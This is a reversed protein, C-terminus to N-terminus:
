RPKKPRHIQLKKLRSRLTNPHLGLRAAAGGPGDLVWGTAELASVVADRELEKLPRPASLPATASDPRAFALVDNLNVESGRSVICARAIANQLERVNGPWDAQTLWQVAERSITLTGRGLKRGEQRVLVEALDAIDGRRDRLPPVAIPFVNLRFLLDSRFRGAKVDAQLDRNTAAVIRVDVKIPLSSGVRELEGEQLVRLLKAQTELPLEGVEDLFLTGEDAVEFRGMRRAVAGTFAGKEHGFLESEVLGASVAACNVKVLMRDRRPSAQHLARAVLEKGTGTEGTILVAANSPGVLLVRELVGAMGAGVIGDPGYSERLEAALYDVAQEAQRRPTVDKMLLSTGNQSPFFQILWWRRTLPLYLEISQPRSERRAAELTAELAPLEDPAVTDQWRAGIIRQEPLGWAEILKRNASLVRGQLDLALFPDAVREVMGSVLERAMDAEARARREQALLEERQAEARARELARACGQSLIRLLDVQWQPWESSDRQMSSLGLVHSLEGGAAVPFLLASSRQHDKIYDGLEGGFMGPARPLIFPQQSRLAGLLQPPVSKFPVRRFPEQDRMPVLGPAVYEAVLVNVDDVPDRRYLYARECRTFTAVRSLAEAVRAEVQDFPQDILQTALTSVLVEFESRERAASSEEVPAAAATAPAEPV